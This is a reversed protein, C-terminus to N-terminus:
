IYILEFDKGSYAAPLATSFTLKNGAITYNSLAIAEGNLMFGLVAHIPQDVTYDKNSGNILGVPAETKVIRGITYKIGMDTHGGGRRTNRVIEERVKKFEELLGNIADMDLLGELAERHSEPSPHPPVEPILARTINIEDQLERKMGEFDPLKPILSEVRRAENKVEQLLQKNVQDIDTILGREAQKIKSEADRSLAVIRTEATKIDKLANSVKDSMEGKSDALEQTLRAKTDKIVKTFEVLIAVVEKTSPRDEDLVTLIQKLKDLKDPM